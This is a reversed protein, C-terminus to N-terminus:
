HKHVRHILEKFYFCVNTIFYRKTCTTKGFNGGNKEIGIYIGDVRNQVTYPKIYDGQKGQGTKLNYKYRHIPCVM